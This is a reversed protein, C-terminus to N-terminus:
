KEDWSTLLPSTLFSNKEQFVLLSMKINSVIFYTENEFVFSFFSFLTEELFEIGVNKNKEKGGFFYITYVVVIYVYYINRKTGSKHVHTHIYIM